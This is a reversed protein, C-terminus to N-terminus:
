VEDRGGTRGLASPRSKGGLVKRLAVKMRHSHKAAFETVALDHFPRAVSNKTGDHVFRAYFASRRASRTLYGVAGVLASVKMSKSYRRRLVGRRKKVMSDINARGAGHVEGVTQGIGIAVHRKLEDPRRLARVRAAKVGRIRSM